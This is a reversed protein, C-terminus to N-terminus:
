KDTHWNYKTETLEKTSDFPKWGRPKIVSSMVTSHTSRELCLYIAFLRSYNGLLKKEWAIIKHKAKAQFESSFLWDQWNVNNKISSDHLCKPIAGFRFNTSLIELCFTPPIQKTFCRRIFYSVSTTSTQKRRFRCIYM